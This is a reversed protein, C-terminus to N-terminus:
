AGFVKQAFASLVETVLQEHLQLAFQGGEGLDVIEARPHLAKLCAKEEPSYLKDDASEAILVALDGSFNEAKLRYNSYINPVLATNIAIHQAKYVSEAFTEEIYGLWFLSNDRYKEPCISDFLNNAMSLKQGPSYSQFRFRRKLKRRLEWNQRIAPSLDEGPCGTMMLALGKVREPARQAMIQALLGGVSNAAIMMKDVGLGSLIDLLASTLLQPDEDDALSITILRYRDRMDLMYPFWIEGHGMASPLFVLTGLPEKAENVDWVRYLKGHREEYKPIYRERFALLRGVAARPADNYIQEFSRAM